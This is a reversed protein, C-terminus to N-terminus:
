IQGYAAVMKMKSIQMNKLADYLLQLKQSIYKINDIRTQFSLKINDLKVAHPETSRIAHDKEAFSYAQVNALNKGVIYKLNSECWNHYSHLRNEYLTIDLSYKAILVMYEAIEEVSLNSIAEQSSLSKIITQINEPPSFEPLYIEAKMTEIQEAFEETKLREKIEQM